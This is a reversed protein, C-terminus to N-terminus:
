SAKSSRESKEVLVVSVIMLVIALIQWWSFMDQGFIYSMIAAVILILNAYLAVVTAPLNKLGIDMLLYGIATPFVLVFMLVLFPTSFLNQSLVPADWLRTAVVVIAAVFLGGPFTWKSVTANSLRRLFRKEIVLYGSYFLTSGFCFINGLMPNRATESEHQTLICVLAAVIGVVIGAVRGIRFQETRMILCILYVCAAQLCIFISSSIPTTYTIGLLLTYMYGFVFVMGTVFLLIKDRASSKPTDKRRFIGLIWFFITGFLLRLVVGTYANMWVPLLYKLANENLGSFTKSGVMAINGKIRNPQNQPSIPNVSQSSTM